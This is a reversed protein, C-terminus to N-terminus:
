RVVRMAADLAERWEDNRVDDGADKEKAANDARESGEVCRAALSAAAAAFQWMNEDRRAHGTECVRVWVRDAEAREDAPPGVVAVVAFGSGSAADVGTARHFSPGAAGVEAIGWDAGCMLQLDRAASTAWLVRSEWYREPSAYNDSGRASELARLADHTGPVLAERAGAAYAVAGGTFYASAGPLSLLSAALLGGTSCESVAVTHGRKKLADALGAAVADLTWGHGGSTSPPPSAPAPFTPIRDRM